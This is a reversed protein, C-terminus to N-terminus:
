TSEKDPKGGPVIASVSEADDDDAILVGTDATDAEDDDEIEVGALLEEDVDAEDAGADDAEDVKEKEPPTKEPKAAAAPKTKKAEVPTAPPSSYIEGCKPCSFPTRNLDYFKAECSTCTYKTGLEPRAVKKMGLRHILIRGGQWPCLATDFVFIPQRDVTQHLDGFMLISRPPNATSNEDERVGASRIKKHDPM